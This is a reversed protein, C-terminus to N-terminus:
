GTRAPRPSRTPHRDDDLETSHLDEIAAKIGDLQKDYQGQLRMAVAGSFLGSSLLEPLRDMARHKATFDGELRALRDALLPRDLGLQRVLPEISLGQVLLTFLVAGMVLAVFVERYDFPPLSLAIALAIAGRLGGWFMVAQYARNM